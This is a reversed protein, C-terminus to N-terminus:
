TRDITTVWLLIARDPVFRTMENTAPNSIELGTMMHLVVRILLDGAHSWSTHRLGLQISSLYAVNGWCIKTSPPQCAFITPTLASVTVLTLEVSM